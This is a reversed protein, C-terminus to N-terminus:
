TPSLTLDLSTAKTDSPPFSFLTLTLAIVYTIRRARLAMLRDPFTRELEHVRLNEFYCSFVTYLTHWCYVLHERPGLDFILFTLNM